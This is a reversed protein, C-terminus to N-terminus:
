LGAFILIVILFAIWAYFLKTSFDLESASEFCDDCVWVKRNRRYVRFSGRSTAGEKLNKSLGWSTGANETVIVQHM